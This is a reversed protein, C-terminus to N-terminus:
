YKENSLNEKAEKNEWFNNVDHPLFNLDNLINNFKKWRMEKYFENKLCEFKVFPSGHFIETSGKREFKEYVEWAKKCGIELSYCNVFCECDKQSVFIKLGSERENIEVSFVDYYKGSIKKTDFCELIKINSVEKNIFDKMEKLYDKM